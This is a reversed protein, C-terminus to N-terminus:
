AENGWVDWGLRRTRAFMELYPPPSAIQVRYYFEDPKASHQTRKSEFGTTISKGNTPLKGRTAFLCHETNNRFYNGLGMQPKVWTLTTRYTFGWSDLLDFSPRLFGNTTWLYLHSDDAAPIHLAALEELSMTAYHNEAAGRTGRNDYRWPPDVVVTSYSEM